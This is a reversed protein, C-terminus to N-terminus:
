SGTIPEGREGGVTMVACTARRVVQNTTSGFLTIDIPGRGRVGLVILDAQHEGAVRLIERHPTGTSVLASVVVPVEPQPTATPAADPAGTPTSDLGRAASNSATDAVFQHLAREASETQRRRLEVIYEPALLDQTDPADVVHLVTVQGHSKQALSRAMDLAQHSPASFDVPCLIRAFMVNGASRPAGPPLTLVPCPAKRLVKEAVSGLAFRDFGSRGHTGMVILDARVEKAERVIEAAADGERTRLAGTPGSSSAGAVLAELERTISDRAEPIEMMWGPYTALSAPPIWTAFVHLPTVEGGYWRALAVAHALVPQSFESLDIPCLIKV